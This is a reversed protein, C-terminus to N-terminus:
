EEMMKLYSEYRYKNISPNNQELAEKVVCGPERLHLCDSFRCSTGLTEFEPFLYKIEEKPLQEIGLSRIGPTDIIYSDTDWKLLSSGTTTHRGKGSKESVEGTKAALGPILANLLSSKGVGSQGLFVATKGRLHQKLEDLGESRKTSTRVIPIHIQEYFSLIEPQVDTLDVKTLCILPTVNGTQLLALYRDIFRQHFDPDRVSVTIIGIDVNASLVHEEVPTNSRTRDSRSRTVSSTRPTRGFLIASGDEGKQFVVHDGVAFDSEENLRTERDLTAPFTVDEKMIEFGKSTIGALVGQEFVEDLENDLSFGAEGGKSSKKAARAKKAKARNNRERDWLNAMSSSLTLFFLHTCPVHRRSGTIVASARVCRERIIM